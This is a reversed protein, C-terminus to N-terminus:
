CHRCPNNSNDDPYPLAVKGLPRLSAALAYGIRSGDASDIEVYPTGAIKGMFSYLVTKPPVKKVVTSRPDDFRLIDAGNPAVYSLVQPGTQAFAVTAPLASLAIVSFFVVFARM